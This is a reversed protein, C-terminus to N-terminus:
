WLGEFRLRASPYTEVHLEGNERRDLRHERAEGRRKRLPVAVEILRLPVPEAAEREAVTVVHVEATSVIARERPVKRLDDVRELV